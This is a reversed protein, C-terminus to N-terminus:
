IIRLQETLGLKDLEDLVDTKSVFDEKSLKSSLWIFYDKEIQFLQNLDIDEIPDYQDEKSIVFKVHNQIMRSHVKFSNEFIFKASPLKNSGKLRHMEYFKEWVEKRWHTRNGNPFLYLQTIAIMVQKTHDEIWAGLDKRKDSMGWINQRVVRKM